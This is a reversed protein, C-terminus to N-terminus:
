ETQVVKKGNWFFSAKSSMFKIFNIYKKESQHNPDILPLVSCELIQLPAPFKAMSPVQVGLHSFCYPTLSPIAQMKTQRYTTLLKMKENRVHDQQTYERKHQLNINIWEPNNHPFQESPIFGISIHMTSWYYTLALLWLAQAIQKAVQYAKM